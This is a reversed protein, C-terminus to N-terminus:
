ADAPIDIATLRGGAELRINAQKFPSPHEHLLIRVGLFSWRRRQIKILIKRDEQRVITRTLM